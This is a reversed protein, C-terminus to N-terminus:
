PIAIDGKLMKISWFIFLDVKINRMSKIYPM